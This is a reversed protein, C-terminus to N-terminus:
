HHIMNDIDVVMKSKDELNIYGIRAGNLLLEAETLSTHDLVEIFERLDSREFVGVLVDDIFMKFHNLFDSKELRFSEIKNSSKPKTIEIKNWM